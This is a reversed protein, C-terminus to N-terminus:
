FKLVTGANISPIFGFESVGAEIVDFDSGYWVGLGTNVNIGFTEVLMFDVGLRARAGIAVKFTRTYPTLTLDVGGYPRVKQKSGQYIIGFNFPVITNWINDDGYEEQLEVPVERNVSYGALGIQVYITQAVPISVEAGYSVFNWAQYRSYGARATIGVRPDHPMFGGSITASNGGSRSSSSRSSSSSSRDDEYRDDDYRDDSRDDYSSSSSSRASRVEEPEPEYTELDDYYDDSYYSDSDSSSAGPAPEYDSTAVADDDFTEYTSHTPEEYIDEDYPDDEVVEEEASVSSGFEIEDVSVSSGFSIDDFDDDEGDDYTDYADDSGYSDDAVAQERERERDREAEAQRREAEEAERRQAEKRAKEDEKRQREAEKDRRRQEDALRREEDKRTREEEARREDERRREEDIRAQEQRRQEEIRAQEAEYRRQEELRQEEERRRQEDIRAQEEARRREEEARRREEEARRREEEQRRAEYGPDEVDELERGSNQPTDLRPSADPDEFEFDMDDFDDEMAFEDVSAVSHEEEVQARSKGTVLEQVYGGMTDAMKEPAKDVKFTKKRVFTGRQVDFLVMYVDFNAGSAAVSGAVLFDTGQAKGVTSMCSTKSMCSLNFGNPYDDLQDVMGYEGMFDLESAVLSTINLVILADVGKKVFPVVVADGAQATGPLLAALALFAAISLRKM